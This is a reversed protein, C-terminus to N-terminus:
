DPNRWTVTWPIGGPSPNGTSAKPRFTDAMNVKYVTLGNVSGLGIQQNTVKSNTVDCDTFTATGFDALQTVNTFKHGLLLRTHLPAEVICEAESLPEHTVIVTKDIVQKSNDTLLIIFYEAPGVHYSIDLSIKDGANVVYGVSTEGAPLSEWWAHYKPSATNSSCVAATGAQVLHNGKDDIGAWMSMWSSKSSGECSVYPVQWTAHIDTVTGLTAYYGAWNKDSTANIPGSTNTPAPKVLTFSYNGGTATCDGAAVQSTATIHYTGANAYTHQALFVYGDAPNTKTIDSSSGDAWDVHITFTCASAGSYHGNLTVTGDTSQCSGSSNFSCPTSSAAATAAHAETGGSLGAAVALAVALLMVSRARVFFRGM